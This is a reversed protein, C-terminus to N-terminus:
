TMETYKRKNHLELLNLYINELQRTADVIDFGNEKLAQTGREAQVERNTYKQLMKEMKAAWIKPEDEISAFEVLDSPACERTIKDSILCPLGEAQWELVVNPLGEFRSPFVMLDMAQLYTEVHNVTGEFFVKKDIELEAALKKTEEMLPGEGMLFLVSEPNMKQYENFANILYGHNKQFNFNGVHGIVTKGDLHYQKRLLERADDNYKFKNFDKGNHIITFEKEGFLWKGAAEGCAMGDTYLCRFLPRLVKDAKAQDAKTNRSHAIRVKVGAIKAALLEISMLASSGHIHIIHPKHKKLETVLQFFYRITHKKRDQFVIVNCGANKFEDLMFPDNNHVAAVLIEFRNRNIHKFFELQTSSIGERHIGGTIVHLVRIKEM